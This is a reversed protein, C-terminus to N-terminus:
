ADVRDDYEALLREAEKSAVNADRLELYVAQAESQGELLVLRDVLTLVREHAGMMAQLLDDGELSLGDDELGAEAAKVPDAPSDLSGHRQAGPEPDLGNATAVERLILTKSGFVTLSVDTGSAARFRHQEVGAHAEIVELELGDPASVKGNLNITM